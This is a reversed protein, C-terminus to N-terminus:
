RKPLHGMPDVPKVGKRTEFHLQPVDVSGSSGALAIVQGSTVKAGELVKAAANHAYATVWGNGHRILILRGYNKLEAGSYIVTGAGAAHIKANAAAAINIGDNRMGGAKGGFRSLIKGEIPWIFTSTAAPRKVKPKRLAPAPAPKGPTKAHVIIPAKPAAAKWQGSADRSLSPLVLISNPSIIFPQEIGNIGALSMADVKYRRAISYLTDGANVRYSLPAPLHLVQGKNLNYPKKLRNLDILPQLAVQYKESLSFLTDGTQVRVSAPRDRTPIIEQEVYPRPTQAAMPRIQAMVSKSPTNQVKPRLDVPAPGRPDVDLMDLEDAVSLAKAGIDPMSLNPAGGVSGVAGLAGGAAGIAIASGGAGAIPSVDLMDLEDAESLNQTDVKTTPAAIPVSSDIVPDPIAQKSVPSAPSAVGEKYLVPAPGGGSMCAGLLFLGCLAFPSYRIM